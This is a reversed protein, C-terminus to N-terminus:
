FYPEFDIVVPIQLGIATSGVKEIETVSVNQRDLMFEADETTRGPAMKQRRQASHAHRNNCSQVRNKTLGIDGLAPNKLLNGAKGRSKIMM